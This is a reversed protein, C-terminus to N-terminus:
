IRQGLGRLSVLWLKTGLVDERRLWSLTRSDLATSPQEQVVFFCDPPVIIQGPADPVDVVVPFRGTPSVEVGTKVDNVVYRGERIAITDGPVALIRAIVVDGPRGWSSKSSVRFVVRAGPVLDAAGVRKHYLIREGPNVVPIMGTGRTILAGFNILLCIAAVVAGIYVPACVLAFHRSFISSDGSPRISIRGVAIYEAAWFLVVGLLSVIALWATLGAPYFSVLVVAAMSMATLALGLRAPLPHGLLAFGAGQVLSSRMRASKRITREREDM